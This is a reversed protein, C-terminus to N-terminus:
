FYFNSSRQFTDLCGFFIVWFNGGWFRIGFECLDIVNVEFFPMQTRLNSNQTNITDFFSFNRLITDIYKTNRFSFNQTSLLIVLGIMDMWILVGFFMQTNVELELQPLKLLQRWWCERERTPTILTFSGSHSSPYCLAGLKLKNKKRKRKKQRESFKERFSPEQKRKQSFFSQLWLLFLTM